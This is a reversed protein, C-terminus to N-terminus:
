GMLNIPKCLSIDNLLHTIDIKIKHGFTSENVGHVETSYRLTNVYLCNLGSHNETLWKAKGFGCDIELFDRITQVRGKCEFLYKHPNDLIEQKTIQNM